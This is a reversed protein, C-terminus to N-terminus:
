GEKGDPEVVRLGVAAFGEATAERSQEWWRSLADRLAHDAAPGLAGLRDLLSQEDIGWKAAYSSVDGLAGM